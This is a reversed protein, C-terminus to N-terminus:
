LPYEREREMYNRKEKMQHPENGELYVELAYKDHLYHDHTVAARTGVV